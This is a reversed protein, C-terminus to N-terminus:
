VTVYETELAVAMASHSVLTNLNQENHRGLDPDIGFHALQQTGWGFPTKKHGSGMVPQSLLFAGIAAITTAYSPM